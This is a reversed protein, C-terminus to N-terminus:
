FCGWKIEYRGVVVVFLIETVGRGVGSARGGGKEGRGRTGCRGRLINRGINRKADDGGGEEGM